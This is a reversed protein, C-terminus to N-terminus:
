GTGVVSSKDKTEYFSFFVITSRLINNNFFLFNYIFQFQQLHSTKFLM